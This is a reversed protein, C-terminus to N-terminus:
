RVQAKMISGQTWIFLPAIRLVKSGSPYGAAERGPIFTLNTRIKHRLHHGKAQKTGQFHEVSVVQNLAELQDEVQGLGVDRIGTRNVM